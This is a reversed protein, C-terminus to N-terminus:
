RLVQGASASRDGNGVFIWFVIGHAIHQLVTCAIIHGAEPQRGRGREDKVGCGRNGSPRCPAIGQHAIAVVAIHAFVAEHMAVGQALHHIGIRLCGSQLQRTSGPSGVWIVLCCSSDPAQLTVKIDGLLHQDRHSLWLTGGQYQARRGHGQDIHDLECAAQEELRPSFIHQDAVVGVGGDRM